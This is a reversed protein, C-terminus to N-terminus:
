FISKENNVQNILKNENVKYRMIKNVLNLRIFLLEYITKFIQIKDDALQISINKILILNNKILHNIKKLM